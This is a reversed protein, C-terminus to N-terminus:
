TGRILRIDLGAQWLEAKDGEERGAARGRQGSTECVGSECERGEEETEEGEWGRRLWMSTALSNALCRLFRFCSSFATLAMSSSIALDM